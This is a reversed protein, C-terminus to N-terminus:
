DRHYFRQLGRTSANRVTSTPGYHRSTEREDRAESYYLVALDIEDGKGKDEAEMLAALRVDNAALKDRVTPRYYPVPNASLDTLAAYPGMRSAVQMANFGRSALKKAYRELQPGDSHLNTPAADPSDAEMTLMADGRDIAVYKTM